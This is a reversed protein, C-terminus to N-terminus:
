GLLREIPYRFGDRHGKLANLIDTPSFFRTDYLCLIVIPFRRAIRQDAEAEYDVLEEPAIGKALGIADGVVRLSRAGKAIANSLTDEFYALQARPSSKYRTAILHGAKMEQRLTDSDIGLRSLIEEQGKAETLLCCLSDPGLGGALFGTALKIRGANSGYLGSLHTGIPLPIGDVVVQQAGPTGGPHGGQPREGSAPQDDMFAVLDARRFRRERRRGVRLWALAGQNTWRRLSTESVGLFQAAQKIDLLETHESTEAM